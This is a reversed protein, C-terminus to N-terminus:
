PQAEMSRVEGAPSRYLTLFIEELGMSVRDLTEIKPLCSGYAEVIQQRDVEQARCDVFSLRHGRARVDLWSEPLQDLDPPSELKIEVRRHRNLLDELHDAFLVRGEHLFGVRDALREVLHMEHTVLFVTWRERASIELAGSVVHERVAPDLGGFPEDMILIEPRYAMALVMRARMRMGRSFRRLRQDRPLGFQEILGDCLAQDWGRYLPSVLRILADLTFGGPLEQAESVFGVKSLTEPDLRRSDVGLLSTRGHTPRLWGMLASILTSKGSGNAGILAFVEGPGVELDVNRLAWDDPNPLLGNWYRHSLGEIKISSSDTSVGEMPVREAPLKETPVKTNIKDTM